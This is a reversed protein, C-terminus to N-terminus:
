RLQSIIEEDSLRSSPDESLGAKVIHGIMDLNKRGDEMSRKEDIMELFISRSIENTKQTSKLADVPANNLIWRIVSMPIYQLLSVFAAQSATMSGFTEMSCGFLTM